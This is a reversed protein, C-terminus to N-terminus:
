VKPAAFPEAGANPWSNRWRGMVKPHFFPAFSGGKGEDNGPM